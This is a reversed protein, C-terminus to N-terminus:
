SRMERVDIKLVEHNLFWPTKTSSPIGLTVNRVGSLPYSNGLIIYSAWSSSLGRWQCVPGREVQWTPGQSNKVVPDPIYPKVLRRSAGNWTSLTHGEQICVDGGSVKRGKILSPLYKGLSMIPWDAEGEGFHRSCFVIHQPGAKEWSSTLSGGLSSALTNM